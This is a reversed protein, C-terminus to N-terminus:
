IDLFVSTRGAMTEGNFVPVMHQPIVGEEMENVSTQRVTYTSKCLFNVTSALSGPALHKDQCEEELFTRM